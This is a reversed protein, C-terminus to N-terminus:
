DESVGRGAPDGLRKLARQVTRSAYKAKDAITKVWLAIAWGADKNLSQALVSATEKTSYAGFTGTPVKALTIVLQDSDTLTTVKM